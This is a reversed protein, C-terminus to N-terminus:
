PTIGHEGRSRPHAGGRFDCCVLVDTNGARAPILGQGRCVRLLWFLTGRALPSSGVVFWASPLWCAHEGRSRPHARTFRLEGTKVRTNGARAPILGVDALPSFIVRRTGRALPSSGHFSVNHSTQITHEGRSRPHAWVPLSAPVVSSTNGARAPILGLSLRELGIGERTGRALPSSGTSVTWWSSIKSHEGRSRPHAWPTKQM